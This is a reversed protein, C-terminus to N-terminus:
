RFYNQTTLPHMESVCLDNWKSGPITEVVQISLTGSTVPKINIRQLKDSDSIEITQKSGDSFTVEAKRLRSNLPFLNGYEPYDPAHSGPLIDFGVITTPLFYYTVRSGRGHRNAPTWWTAPSDDVLNAAGFEAFDGNSLVSQVEIRATRQSFNQLCFLVASPVIQIALFLLGVFLFVPLTTERSLARTPSHLLSILHFLLFVGFIFSLIFYFVSDKEVTEKVGHYIFLGTISLICLGNAILFPFGSVRNGFFWVSSAVISWVFTGAFIAIYLASSFTPTDVKPLELFIIMASLGLILGTLLTIAGFVRLLVPYKM